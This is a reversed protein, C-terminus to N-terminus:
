RQRLGLLLMAWMLSRASTSISMRSAVEQRWVRAATSGSQIKWRAACDKTGVEHDAGADVIVVFM